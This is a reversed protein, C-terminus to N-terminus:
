KHLILASFLKAKSLLMLDSWLPTTLLLRRKIEKCLEARCYHCSAINRPTKQLTYFNTFFGIPKQKM